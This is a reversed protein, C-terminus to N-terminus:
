GRSGRPPAPHLWSRTRLAVPWGACELQRRVAASRFPVFGAPEDTTRLWIVTANALPFLRVREILVDDTSARDLVVERTASVAVLRDPAVELRATPLGREWISSVLAGRFVVPGSPLSRRSVAARLM